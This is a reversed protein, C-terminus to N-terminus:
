RLYIMRWHSSRLSSTEPSSRKNPSHNANRSTTHQYTSRKNFHLTGIIRVTICWIIKRFNKAVESTLNGNEVVLLLMIGYIYRSVLNKKTHFILSIHLSSM